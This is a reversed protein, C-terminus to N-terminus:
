LYQHLTDFIVSIQLAFVYYKGEIYKFNHGLVRPRIEVFNEPPCSKPCLM